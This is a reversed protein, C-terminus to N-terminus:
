SHLSGLGLYPVDCVYTGQHNLNWWMKTYSVNSDMILMDPMKWDWVGFGIYDVVVAWVVLLSWSSANIMVSYYLKKKEATLPLSKTAPPWWSEWCIDLGWYMDLSRVHAIPFLVPLHFCGRPVWSLGLSPHAPVGPVLMDCWVPVLMDCWVPWHQFTPKFLLSMLLYYESVLFPCCSNDLSKGWM